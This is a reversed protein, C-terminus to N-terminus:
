STLAPPPRYQMKRYLKDFDITPIGYKAASYRRHGKQGGARNIGIIKM